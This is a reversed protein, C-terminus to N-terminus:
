EEYIKGNEVFYYTHENDSYYSKGELEKVPTNRPLDYVCCLEFRIKEYRRRSSKKVEIKMTRVVKGKISIM